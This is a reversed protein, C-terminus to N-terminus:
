ETWLSVSGQRNLWQLRRLKFQYRQYSIAGPIVEGTSLTALNKVGLDVGM